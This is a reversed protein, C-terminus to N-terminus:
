RWAAALPNERVRLGVVGNALYAPLEKRGAGKVKSPSFPESM